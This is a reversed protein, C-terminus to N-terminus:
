REAHLGRVLMPVAVRVFAERQDAPMRTASGLVGELAAVAVSARVESDSRESAASIGAVLADLGARWNQFVKMLEPRRVAELSLEGQTRVVQPRDLWRLLLDTAENALVDTDDAHTSAVAAMQDVDRSMSTSVYEALGILLAERSRFYASCTGEPLGARADVSRHTLGRLGLDAVVDVAAELLEGRRGTAAPTERSTMGGNHRDRDARATSPWEWGLQM